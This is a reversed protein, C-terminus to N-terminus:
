GELFVFGYAEGYMNRKNAVFVDELIGCVEFSKRLYFCPIQELFNTFYFTVYRKLESGSEVEKASKIVARSQHHQQHGGVTRGDRRGRRIGSRDYSLSKSYDVKLGAYRAQVRVPSFSGDRM